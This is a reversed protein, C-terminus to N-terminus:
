FSDKQQPNNELVTNSDDVLCSGHGLVQSGLTGKKYFGRDLLTGRIQSISTM